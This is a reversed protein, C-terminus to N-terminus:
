QRRWSGINNDSIRICQSNGAQCTWECRYRKNDNIRRFEGSLFSKDEAEQTIETVRNQDDYAYSIQDGNGDTKTTENGKTDYETKQLISSNGVKVTADSTGKTIEPNQIAATQKGEKDYLQLAIKEDGSTKTGLSITAIEKGDSTFVHDTYLGHSFSRVTQGAADTWSKESVRGNTKTTQVSLDQYDKTGNLTHIQADEYGYSTETVTDTGDASETAKIVRNLSDYRYATKIGSASTETAVTGNDDYTKSETQTVGDSTVKTQIARGMFDYSTETSSLINGKRDKSTNETERGM